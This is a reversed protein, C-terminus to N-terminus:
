RNHELLANATVRNATWVGDSLVGQLSVGQGVILDALTIVASTGDPNKLLFRTQATTQIAVAQGIFPKGVTNASVVQVTLTNGDIANIFGAVTFWGGRNQVPPQPGGAALAPMAAVLLLAVALVVILSKKM